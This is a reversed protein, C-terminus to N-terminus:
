GNAQLLLLALIATITLLMVVLGVVWGWKQLKQEEEIAPRTNAKNRQELSAGIGAGIAIGIAIGVGINELPVGIAVGISLGIAIGAGMWYGQPHKRNNDSM